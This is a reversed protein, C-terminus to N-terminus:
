CAASECWNRTNDRRTILIHTSWNFDKINLRETYIKNIESYKTSKNKLTNGLTQKGPLYSIVNDPDEHVTYIQGQNEASGIVSISCKYLCIAEEVSASVTSNYEHQTSYPKTKLSTADKRLGRSDNQHLQCAGKSVPLSIRLSLALNNLCSQLDLLIIDLAADSM